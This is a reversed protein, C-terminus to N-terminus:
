LIVSCELNYLHDFSYRLSLNLSFSVYKFQDFKLCFKLLQSNYLTCGKVAFRNSGVM